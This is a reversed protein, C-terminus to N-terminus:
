AAPNDSPAAEYTTDMPSRTQEGAPTRDHDASKPSPSVPRLVVYDPAGQSFHSAGFYMTAITVVVFILSGAVGIYATLSM